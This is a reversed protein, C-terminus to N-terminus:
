DFGDFLGGVSCLDLVGLVMETLPMGDWRRGMGTGSEIPSGSGRGRGRRHHGVGLGLGGEGDGDGVRDPVREREGERLLLAGRGFGARGGRGRGRSSRPGAGEGGERSLPAGGLLGECERPFQITSVETMGASRAPIEIRGACGKYRKTPVEGGRVSYRAGRSVRSLRPCSPEEFPRWM